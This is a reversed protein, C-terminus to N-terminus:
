FFRDDTFFRTCALLALRRAPVYPLPSLFSALWLRPPLITISACDFFRARLPMFFPRLGEDRLRFVLFFYSPWCGQWGEM